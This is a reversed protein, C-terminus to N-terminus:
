CRRRRGFLFLLSFAGALLWPAIRKATTSKGISCGSDDESPPPSGSEGAAGTVATTDTSTLPATSVTSGTVNATDTSTTTQSVTGTGTTTETATQSGTNTSTSTNSGPLCMLCTHNILPPSSSADRDWSAFDVGLCTSSQCTGPILGNACTDGVQKKLCADIEPPISDALAQPGLLMAISLLPLSKTWAKM